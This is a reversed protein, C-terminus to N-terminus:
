RLVNELAEGLQREREADGRPSSWSLEGFLSEKLYSVEVMVGLTSPGSRFVTARERAPIEGRANPRWGTQLRFGEEDDVVLSRWQDVLVSRARAYADDPLGGPPTVPLAQYPVATCGCLLTALLLAREAGAM